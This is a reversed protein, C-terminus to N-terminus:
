REVQSSPERVTITYSNYISSGRPTPRNIGEYLEGNIKWSKRETEYCPCDNRISM